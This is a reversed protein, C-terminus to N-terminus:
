EGTGVWIVSSNSPDITVVGISAVYENDFIPEWRTGASTSKWLGGSATGAYMVNRNHRVVDISTVRGSMGAPGLSRPKILEFLSLDTQAQASFALLLVLTSLLSKYM